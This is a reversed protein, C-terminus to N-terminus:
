PADPEKNAQREQIGNLKDIVLKVKTPEIDSWKVEPLLSDDLKMFGIGRLYWTETFKIPKDPCM